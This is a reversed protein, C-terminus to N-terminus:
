TQVDLRGAWSHDRKVGSSKSINYCAKEGSSIRKISTLRWRLGAAIRRSMFFFSNRMPRALPSCSRYSRSTSDSSRLGDSFNRVPRWHSLFLFLLLKAICFKKKQHLYAPDFRQGRSHWELKVLLPNWANRVAKFPASVPNEGVPNEFYHHYVTLFANLCKPLNTGIAKELAEIDQDTVTSPILKWAKWEDKSDADERLMANDSEGLPRMVAIGNGLQELTQYYREFFDRMFQRAQTDTM